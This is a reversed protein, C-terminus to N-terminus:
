LTNTSYAHITRCAIVLATHPQTSRMTDSQFTQLLINQNTETNIVHSESSGWMLVHWFHFIQSHENFTLRAKESNLSM